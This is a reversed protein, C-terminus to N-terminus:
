DEEDHTDATDDAAEAEAAMLPPLDNLMKTVASLFEDVGQGSVTSIAYVDRALATSLQQKIAEIEDHQLTDIKNLVIVSPKEILSSSYAALEQHITHYAALPDPQQVDILHVLLRCKEIHKLFKTGLGVGESAGEILGPLDAMLWEQDNYGVVGLHPHLTTFPYDAVKPRARSLRALLSSKGANPLGVLGVDAILKLVLWFTGQQSPEGPTNQTPAQNTSSKFTVNGRGGRGGVLLTHRQGEREFRVIETTRAEDYISTGVPVYLILPDASAGTRERGAGGEGNRAKFHQQFRFDVLTNLDNKAVFIVDGGRGGNGGDPGGFEIFKERRFSIAGAGGAGSEAYIKVEDVFKM